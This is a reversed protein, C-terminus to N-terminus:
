SQYQILSVRATQYTVTNKRQQMQSVGLIIMIVTVVQVEVITITLAMQLLTVLASGDRVPADQNQCM